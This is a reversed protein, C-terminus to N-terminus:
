QPKDRVIGIATASKPSENGATDLASIAYEYRQNKEVKQDSFSGAVETLTAILVFDGEGASKRWVRFGALDPESGGEWSLAIFGPGGIATLGSPVAPPFVDKATVEVTDSDDSELPPKTTLAARVFYRYTRGFLFDKDLFEGAKLLSTNRRGAPNEGESRYINFGASPAPTTPPTIAPTVPVTIPPAILPIIVPIMWPAAEEKPQEQGEWSVLIHDEHVVAQINRPPVLPAMAELSVPTAFQSTRKKLDSVRLSFTLIKKGPDDAALTFRYTLEAPATTEKQSPVAMEEQSLRGIIAAKEAFASTTWKTQTGEAGRDERTLWIEVEAIGILPSGDVYASPNTWTLLCASGRQSVTLDEVAQPVQATPAVIPGKKGCDALVFLLLPLLFSRRRSM